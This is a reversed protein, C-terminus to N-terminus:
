GTENDSQVLLDPRDYAMGQIKVRRIPWVDSHSIWRAAQETILFTDCVAASGIRAQWVIVQGALLLGDGTPQLIRGAPERGSRYGPPCLRWEHESDSNHLFRRASELLASVGVGAQSGAQYIASIRSALEFDHRFMEDVPDFSVSRCATVHLGERCGTVQVIANSQIPRSAFGHRRHTRSRGDAAIQIALPEISHHLLRHGLQGAVEEETQGPEIARATAELAHGIWKGLKILRFQEYESFFTRESRLREQVVPFKQFPLDCVVKRNVCLDGLLTDRSGTWPWEKLQFGLSDIEDDFLRQSDVNNCLLWRHQPTIFLAPHEEDSALGRVRMGATLWAVNIPDVVLLADAEWENLLAGIHQHKLEVDQRRPIDAFEEVSADSIPTEEASM